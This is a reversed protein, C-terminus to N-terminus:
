LRMVLKSRRYMLYGVAVIAIVVAAVNLGVFLAAGTLLFGAIAIAFLIGLLVMTGFALAILTRAEEEIAPVAIAPRAAKAREYEEEEPLLGRL